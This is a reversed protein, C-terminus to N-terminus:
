HIRFFNKLEAIFVNYKNKQDICYHQFLQKLIGPLSSYVQKEIPHLCSSNHSSSWWMHICALQLWTLGQLVKQGRELDWEQVLSGGGNFFSNQYYARIIMNDFHLFLIEKEYCPLDYLLFTFDKSPYVASYAKLSYSTIWSNFIGTYPKECIAKVFYTHQENWKTFINMSMSANSEFQLAPGPFQKFDQEVIYKDFIKYFNSQDDLLFLQYLFRTIEKQIDLPLSCLLRWTDKQSFDLSKKKDQKTYCMIRNYNQMGQLAIYFFFFLIFIKYM